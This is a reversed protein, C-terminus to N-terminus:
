TPPFGKAASGAAMPAANKETPPGQNELYAQLEYLIRRYSARTDNNWDASDPGQIYEEIPYGPLIERKEEM